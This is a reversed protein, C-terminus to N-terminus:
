VCCGILFSYCSMLSNMGTNKRGALVDLLTTKGAGSSGMLATMTGPLFYGEINTLLTRDEGTPLTVTYSIDSFAMSVEDFPLDEHTSSKTSSLQKSLQPGPSSMGVEPDVPVLANVPVVPVPVTFSSAVAAEEMKTELHIAEIEEEEERVPPLPTPMSRVYKLALFTAFFFLLYEGFLVAISYWIYSEDTPNGYQELVVDGYRAKETCDANTCTLFDYKSSKFENICVAKLGWSMPNMWYFWVWGDSILAKPQIFGSFLIM